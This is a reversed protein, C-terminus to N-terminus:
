IVEKYERTIKKKLLLFAGEAVAIIAGATIPRYFFLAIAITTLSLVFAV